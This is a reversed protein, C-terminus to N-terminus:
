AMAELNMMGATPMQEEICLLKEIPSGVEQTFDYERIAEKLVKKAIAKKEKFILSRWNPYNNKLQERIQSKIDKHHM